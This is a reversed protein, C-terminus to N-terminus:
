CSQRGGASDDDVMTLIAPYYPETRCELTGKIKMRASNYWTDFKIVAGGEIVTHGYFEAEVGIYHTYGSRFRYDQRAGGLRTHFDLGTFNGVSLNADRSRVSFDGNSVTVAYDGEHWGWVTEITYSSATAGPINTGNRTWQYTLSGGGMAVAGVSFTVMDEALVFQDLPQSVIVAYAAPLGAHAWVYLNSRQNQPFWVPTANDVAGTVILEPTWTPLNLDTKTLLTYPEGESTNHIIVNVYNTALGDPPIELWPNTTESYSYSYNLGSFELSMGSMSLVSIEAEAEATRKAQLATYDVARDDVIFHRDDLAYVPLELFIRAPLPPLNSRQLSWYTGLERQAANTNLVPVVSKQVPEQWLNSVFQRVALAEPAATFTPTDLFSRAAARNTQQAQAMSHVGVGLFIFSLFILEWGLFVGRWNKM